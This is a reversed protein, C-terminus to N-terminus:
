SLASADGPARFFVDFVAEFVARDQPRSVLVAELAFRLDEKRAVGVQVAAQAALAVRASDIPVGARQLARAFAALNDLALMHTLSTIM